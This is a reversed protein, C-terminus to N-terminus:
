SLRCLTGDQGRFRNAAHTQCVFECGVSSTVEQRLSHESQATVPTSNDNRNNSGNHPHM